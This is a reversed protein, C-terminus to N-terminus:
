KKISTDKGFISYWAASLELRNAWLPTAYGLKDTRWVIEAPLLDEVAKRLVWKSYGDRFFLFKPLTSMYDVLRHDLFPVRSEISYHMSNRDEYRLLNTLPGGFMMFNFMRSADPCFMDGSIELRRKWKIPVFSNSMGNWKIKTRLLSGIVFAKISDPLLCFSVYKLIGEERGSQALYECVGQSFKILQFNHAFEALYSARHVNYGGMVEDGGQGDLLVTVQKAAARMVIHQSYVSTGGIVEDQCLMVQAKLEDFEQHSPFIYHHNLNSTSSVLKAYNSEDIDQGPFCATFASISKIDAGLLKKMCGAIASSDLGGSLCIGVPVDSRLRLRVSDILLERVDDIISTIKGNSLSLDEKRFRSTYFKSNNMKLTELEIVINEGPCVANINKFTTERKHDVLGFMLYESFIEKNVELQFDDIGQFAKIESAFMILNPSTHFFLPKIGFRDRSLLLQKKNLDLLAFAWDGNLHECFGVGWKQYAALLVETDTHTRFEFGCQILETRLEIYNYIEGNFVVWVGDGTTMPQHGDKSLDIISLRRHGLLINGDYDKIHRQESFSPSDKGAIEKVDPLNSSHNNVVLYGEDDPGRHSLNNNLKEILRGNIPTKSIVGTIGCM